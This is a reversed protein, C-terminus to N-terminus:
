YRVMTQLYTTNKIDGSSIINVKGRPQWGIKILDNIKIDLEEPDDSMVTRYKSVGNIYGM